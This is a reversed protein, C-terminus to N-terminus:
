EDADDGTAGTGGEAADDEGEAADDEAMTGLEKLYEDISGALSNIAKTVAAQMEKALKKKDRADQSNLKDALTGFADEAKVLANFKGRIKNLM